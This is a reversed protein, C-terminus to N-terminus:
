RRIQSPDAHGAEFGDGPGAPPPGSKPPELPEGKTEVYVRVMRQIATGMTTVALIILVIQLVLGEWALGFILCGGGLLIVREARQMLGEELHVGLAEAKSRTYSVM